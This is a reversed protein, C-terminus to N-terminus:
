AQGEGGGGFHREEAEGDFAIDESRAAHVWVTLAWRHETAGGAAYSECVSHVLSDSWFSLLRGGRPEIDVVGDEAEAVAAVAGLGPSRGGGAGHIRFCGGMQESWEDQLYLLVTLKRLDSGGMNDYHKDYRSGDGLCVALKNTHVDARLAPAGGFIHQNCAAPLSSVLSVCWETLLPALEYRAGGEINTYLVNKKAYRVVGGQAEDWRTSESPRLEGRALMGEAEARMGAIAERPLFDDILGWGRSRLAECLVPGHRTVADHIARMHAERAAASRPSPKPAKATAPPRAAVALPRAVAKKARGVRSTQPERPAGFGGALGHVTGAHLTLILLTAGWRYARDGAM